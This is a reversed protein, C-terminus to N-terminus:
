AGGLFSPPEHCCLKCKVFSPDVAGTRLCPSWPFKHQAGPTLGVLRAVSEPGVLCIGQHFPRLGEAEFAEACFDPSPPHGRLRELHAQGKWGMACAHAIPVGPELLREFREAESATARLDGRSSRQCNAGPCFYTLRESRRDM